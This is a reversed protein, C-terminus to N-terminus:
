VSVAVESVPCTESQRPFYGVQKVVLRARSVAVELGLGRSAIWQERSSGEIRVLVLAQPNVARQGAIYQITWAKSIHRPCNLLPEADGLVGRELELRVEEVHQVM